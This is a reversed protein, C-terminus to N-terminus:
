GSVAGQNLHTSPNTSESKKSDDSSSPRDEQKELGNSLEGLKDSKSKRIQASENKNTSM